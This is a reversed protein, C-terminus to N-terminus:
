VNVINTYELDTDIQDNAPLTLFKERIDTNPQTDYEDNPTFTYASAINNLGTEDLISSGYVEVSNEFYHIYEFSEVTGSNEIIDKLEIINVEKGTFDLTILKM